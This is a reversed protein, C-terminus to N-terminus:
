RGPNVGCDISANRTMPSIPTPILYVMKFFMSHWGYGKRRALPKVTLLLTVPGDNVLDVEMM